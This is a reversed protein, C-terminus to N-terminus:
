DARHYGHVAWWQVAALVEAREPTPLREVAGGVGRRLNALMDDLQLAQERALAGYRIVDCRVADLSHAPASLAQSIADLAGRLREFSTPRTPSLLDTVNPEQFDM